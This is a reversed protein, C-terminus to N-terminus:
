IYSYSYESPSVQGTVNPDVWKKLLAKVFQAKDLEVATQMLTKGRVEESSLSSKDLFELM